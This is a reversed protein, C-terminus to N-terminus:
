GEVMSTSIELSWDFAVFFKTLSKAFLITKPTNSTIVTKINKKPKRLASKTPKAIGIDINIDKIISPNKPSVMLVM